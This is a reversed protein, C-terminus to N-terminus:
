VLETSQKMVVIFPNLLLTPCQLFQNGIHLVRFCRELFPLRLSLIMFPLAGTGIGQSATCVACCCLLSAKFTAILRWVSAASSRRPIIIAFLSSGGQLFFDGFL